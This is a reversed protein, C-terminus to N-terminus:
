SRMLNPSIGSNMPRTGMFTVRLDRSSSERHAYESLRLIGEYLLILLEKLYILYLECKRIVGDPLYSM